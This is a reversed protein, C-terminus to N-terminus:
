RGGAELRQVLRAHRTMSCGENKEAFFLAFYVIGANSDRGLLVLRVKLWGWIKGLFLIFNVLMYPREQSELETGM